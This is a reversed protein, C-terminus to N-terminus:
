FISIKLNLEFSGGLTGRLPAPETTYMGQITLAQYRVGFGFTTNRTSQYMAFALLKNDITAISTGANWTSAYGNVRRYGIKPELYLQPAYEALDFHYSAATYFTAQEAARRYDNTFLNKINTFAGQISLRSTTYAAGFDGDIYSDRQNLQSINADGQAGNVEDYNIREALVGLSVGLHLYHNNDNLAVHYAYSSVVRTQGILGSKENYLNIGVGVKSFRYEGTIAQSKPGGPLSLWQSRFGLNINLGSDIGAYAPNGLYQNLYFQAAMPNLQAVANMNWIGLILLLLYKCYKKLNM